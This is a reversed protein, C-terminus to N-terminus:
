SDQRLAHAANEPSVTVVDIGTSIELGGPTALHPLIDVHWRFGRLEKEPVHAPATRIYSNYPPLGAIRDLRRHALNMVRALHELQEQTIEFFRAGPHKPMIRIHYDAHPAFPCYVLFHSNEYIIRKADHTEKELEDDSAIRKEEDHRRRANDALAQVYPPVVPLAVIQSHPHDISGGAEPGRNTFIQVHKIHPRHALHNYRKLYLEFVAQAQEESFGGFDKDPEPSHIVIEHYGYGDVVEGSLRPHGKSGVLPYRNIIALAKWDSEVAYKTGDTNSVKDVIDEPRINEPRFPDLRDNKVFPKKWDNPRNARGAAIMVWRNSLLDRRLESPYQEM